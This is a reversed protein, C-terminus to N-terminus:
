AMLQLNKCLITWFVHPLISEPTNNTAGEAHQGDGSLLGGFEIQNYNNEALLIVCNDLGISAACLQDFSICIESLLFRNFVYM